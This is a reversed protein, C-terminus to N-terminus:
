VTYKLFIVTFLVIPLIFADPHTYSFSPPKPWAMPKGAAGRNPGSAKGHARLGTRAQSVGKKSQNMWHESGLLAWPRPPPITPPRHPHHHHHSVHATRQPWAQPLGPRGGLTGPLWQSTHSARLLFGYADIHPQPSLWAKSTAWIWPPGSSPLSPAQPHQPSPSVAEHRLKGM